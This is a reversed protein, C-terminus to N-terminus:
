LFVATVCTSCTLHIKLDSYSSNKSIGNSVCDVDLQSIYNDVQPFCQIEPPFEVPLKCTRGMRAVSSDSIHLNDNVCSIRKVYSRGIREM